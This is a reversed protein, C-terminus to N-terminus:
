NIQVLRYVHQRLIYRHSCHGRARAFHRTWFWSRKDRVADSCIYYIVHVTCSSGFMNALLGTEM